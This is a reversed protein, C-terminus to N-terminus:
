NVPTLTIPPEHMDQIGITGLRVRSLILASSGAAEVKYIMRTTQEGASDPRLELLEQNDVTFFVYRGSRATGGSTIIYEGTANFQIRGWSSDYLADVKPRLAPPPTQLIAAGARRYTGDWSESVTIKLRVNETVRVRISDLSELQIDISRRLTSISINQSSVFLGFRTNTSNRWHFVQQSDNGYFIIERGPHNFYLYQKTDITGQPTVYYWLGNIFNEFVGTTGSLIERLRRQEIQSGPIRTISTRLYQEAEPNFTYIIELQDLINSSTSDHGYAAITFSHGTTIGQQYALSRGTEQIIISGDIYIEAIKNYPTDAEAAPSRRFITMTHENRNNMGTIIICNNRDGILDQLFLSVTEPRTAATPANWMRRYRRTREDYRLLTIYVTRTPDSANRYAVVQDEVLGKEGEKNLISIVVEGDELPIRTTLSEVWTRHYEVGPEFGSGPERPTVIRTIHHEEVKPYLLTKWFGTALVIILLICAIAVVISFGIFGKKM